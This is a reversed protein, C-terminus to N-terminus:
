FGHGHVTICLCPKEEMNLAPIAVNWVGYMYLPRYHQMQSLIIGIFM